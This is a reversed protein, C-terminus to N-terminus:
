YCVVWTVHGCIKASLTLPWLVELVQNTIHLMRHSYLVWIGFWLRLSGKSGIRVSAGQVVSHLLVKVFYLLVPITRTNVLYTDRSLSVMCWTYNKQTENLSLVFLAIYTCYALNNRKESPIDSDLGACSKHTWSMKPADYAWDCPIVDMEIYSMHFRTQMFKSCLKFM